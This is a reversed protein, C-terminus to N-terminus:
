PVVSQIILCCATLIIFLVPSISYPWIDLHRYLSLVGFIVCFSPFILISSPKRFILLPILHGFISMLAQTFPTAGTRNFCVTTVCGIVFLTPLLPYLFGVGISELGCVLPILYCSSMRFLSVDHSISNLWM